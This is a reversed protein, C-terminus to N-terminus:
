NLSTTLKRSGVVRFIGMFIYAYKHYRSYYRITWSIEDSCHISDQCQLKWKADRPNTQRIAHRYPEHINHIRYIYIYIIYRRNVIWFYSTFHDLYLFSASLFYYIIFCYSRFLCPISSFFILLYASDIIRRTVDESKKWINDKILSAFVESSFLDVSILM